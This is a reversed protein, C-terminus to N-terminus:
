ILVNTPAVVQSDSSHSIRETVPEFTNDIMANNNKASRKASIHLNAESHSHPMRNEKM